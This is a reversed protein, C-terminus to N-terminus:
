RFNHCKSPTRHDFFNTITTGNWYIAQRDIEIIPRYKPSQCGLLNKAGGPCVCLQSYDAASTAHRRFGGKFICQFDFTGKGWKFSGGSGHPMIRLEQCLSFGNYTLALPYYAKLALQERDFINPKLAYRLPITAAQLRIHRTCTGSLDPIQKILQM